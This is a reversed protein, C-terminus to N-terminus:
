REEELAKALKRLENEETRTLNDKVGKAYVLLLYIRDRRDVFYYVVRAGGSKGERRSPRAFRVKRFGGTREIVEGRRPNELLLLELERRDDDTLLKKASAQFSHTSVFEILVERGVHIWRLTTGLVM